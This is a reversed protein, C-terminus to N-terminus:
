QSLSVRDAPPVDALTAHQSLQLARVYGVIAQRDASPIRDAFGPMVGYGRAIVELIQADTAARLRAEHYSPPAPFGRRVVIGGGYGDEGHCPACYINFRERGRRLAAIATPVTAALSTQAALTRPRWSVTGPPSSIAADARARSAQHKMNDCAGALLLLPLLAVARKM